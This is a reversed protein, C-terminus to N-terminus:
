GQSCGGRVVNIDLRWDIDHYHPQKLNLESLVRRIEQSYSEYNNLVCQVQESKLKLQKLTEQLDELSLDSRSAEAFLYALSEVANKVTATSVELKEKM